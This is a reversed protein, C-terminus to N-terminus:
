WGSGSCGGCGPSGRVPRIGATPPRGPGGTAPLRPARLSWRVPPSPGHRRVRRRGGVALVSDEFADCREALAAWTQELVHDRERVTRASLGGRRQHVCHEHLRQAVRLEFLETIGRRQTQRRSLPDREGGVREHHLRQLERATSRSGRPARVTLSRDTAPARGKHSDAANTMSSPKSIASSRSITASMASEAAWAPTWTTVTVGLHDALAGRVADVDAGGPPPTAPSSAAPVRIRAPPSRDQQGAGHTLVPHRHHEGPAFERDLGVVPRVRCRDVTQHM